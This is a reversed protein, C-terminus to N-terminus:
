WAVDVLEVFQDRAGFESVSREFLNELARFRPLEEVVSLLM